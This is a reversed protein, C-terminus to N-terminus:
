FEDIIVFLQPYFSDVLIRNAPWFKRYFYLRKILNITGRTPESNFLERNDPVGYFKRRAVVLDVSDVLIHGEKLIVAHPAHAM